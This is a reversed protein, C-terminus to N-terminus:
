QPDDQRCKHEAVDNLLDTTSPNERRFHILWGKGPDPDIHDLVVPHGQGILLAQLLDWHLHVARPSIPFPLQIIEPLMTIPVPSPDYPM